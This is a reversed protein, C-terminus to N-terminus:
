PTETAGETPPVPQVGNGNQAMMGMIDVEEAEEATAEPNQRRLAVLAFAAMIDEDMEGETLKKMAEGFKMGTQQAVLRMEKVRFVSLDLTVAETESM